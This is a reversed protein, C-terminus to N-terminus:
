NISNLPAGGWKVLDGSNIIVSRVFIHLKQQPQEKQLVHLLM